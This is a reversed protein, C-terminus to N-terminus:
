RGLGADIALNFDRLLSVIVWQEDPTFGELQTDSLGELYLRLKAGLDCTHQKNLKEIQEDLSTITDTGQDM